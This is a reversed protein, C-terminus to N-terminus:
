QKDTTETATLKITQGNAFSCIISNGEIKFGAIFYDELLPFIEEIFEKVEFHPEKELEDFISKEENIQKKFKKDM